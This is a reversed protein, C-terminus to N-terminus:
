QGAFSELSFPDADFYWNSDIDFSITGGFPDYNDLSDRAEFRGAWASNGSYGYGYQAVGLQSSGLQRAGVYIRITNAPLSPNDIILDEGTGPHDLNWQWENFGSPIMATFTEELMRS